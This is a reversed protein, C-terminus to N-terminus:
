NTLVFICGQSSSFVRKPISNIDIARWSGCTSRSFSRWFSSFFIFASSCHSTQLFLHENPSVAITTTPFGLNETYHKETFLHHCWRWAREAPGLSADCFSQDLPGQRHGRGCIFSKERPWVAVYLYGQSKVRFIVYSQTINYTTTDTKYPM